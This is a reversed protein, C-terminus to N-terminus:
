PAVDTPLILCALRQIADVTSQCSVWPHENRQEVLQARQVARQVRATAHSVRRQALQTHLVGVKRQPLAAVRERRLGRGGRGGLWSTRWATDADRCLKLLRSTSSVCRASSSM